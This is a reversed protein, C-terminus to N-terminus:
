RKALEIRDNVLGIEQRLAECNAMYSEVKEIDVDLRTLAKGLQQWNRFLRVRLADSENDLKHKQTQQYEIAASLRRLRVIDIFDEIQQRTHDDYSPALTLPM